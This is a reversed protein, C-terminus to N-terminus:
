GASRDPMPTAKWGSSLRSGAQFNQRRKECRNSWALYAAASRTKLPGFSRTTSTSEINLSPLPAMAKSFRPVLGVSCWVLQKGRRLPAPSGRLAPQASCWGWPRQVPRQWAGAVATRGASSVSDNSGCGRGPGLQQDQAAVDIGGPLPQLRKAPQGTGTSITAPLWSNSPRPSACAQGAKRSRQAPRPMRSISRSRTMTVLAAPALHADDAGHAPRIEVTQARHVALPRHAGRSCKMRNIPGGATAHRQIGGAQAVLGWQRRHSSASSASGACPRQCAVTTTVVSRGAGAADIRAEAALGARGAEDIGVVVQAACSRAAHVHVAPVIEGHRPGVLARGAHHALGHAQDASPSASPKSGILGM